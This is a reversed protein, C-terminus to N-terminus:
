RTPPPAGDLGADAQAIAVHEALHALAHDGHGGGVWAEVVVDATPASRAIV